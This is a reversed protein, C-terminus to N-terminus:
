KAEGYTAAFGGESWTVLEPWWAPPQRLLGQLAALLEEAESEPVVYVLEDHVRLKFRYGTLKYFALAVDFVSDRSLAQVINEDVKPGTLFAKHRGFGYMWTKREEGTRRDKVMEQRLGPYRILRGSPLEIGEKVTHCLGWPDIPIREGSRMSFLARGCTKWGAPIQHYYSRWFQVSEIAQHLTLELGGLTKAVRQFTLAGAGYGLGLNEVKALQRQQDDVQEPPIGFQASAFSRYLDAVPNMKWLEMSSPVKWLTHNVRLEIGSQDAVMVVYGPPARLGRRLADSLKPKKKNIRPFNQPNYEEGSDRGTTDAGCYRLPIPVLGEALEAATLLKEIRTELLTSKIALRTRAATAVVPDDHEQLDLFAQDTKALAPVTKEPNTPSPKLPTEVGRAELLKSFRPASAMEARIFEALKEDDPEVKDLELIRGLELLSDRKQKREAALTHQLLHKDLVFAPETRARILSDIQWLEGTTFHPRLKHFLEYCQDADEANYVTMDAIEQRTFDALRKGRTQLLVANNKKGIGYHEVLFGLGLRLEKAHVARAMALTDLWLKPRLKLRYSVVYADFEQNHSLLANDGVDLEAFRATIAAEGFLVETQGGDVKFACSILEFEDGLVYELPSLKSLSYTQSWYTEFDITIIKM